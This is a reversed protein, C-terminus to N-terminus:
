TEAMGNGSLTSRRCAFQLQVAARGVPRVGTLLIVHSRVGAARCIATKQRELMIIIGM